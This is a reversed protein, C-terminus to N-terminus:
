LARVRKLSPLFERRQHDELLLLWDGDGENCCSCQPCKQGTKWPHEQMMHEGTFQSGVSCLPLTFEHLRSWDCIGEVQLM